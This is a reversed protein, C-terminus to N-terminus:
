EIMYVAIENKSIDLEKILMEKVKEAEAGSDFRYFGDKNFKIFGVTGNEYVWFDHLYLNKIKIKCAPM